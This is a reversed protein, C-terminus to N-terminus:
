CPVDAVFLLSVDREENSHWVFNEMRPIPVMWGEKVQAFVGDQGKYYTRGTESQVTVVDQVSIQVRVLAERTVREMDTALIPLPDREFIRRSAVGWVIDGENSTWALAYDHDEAFGHARIMHIALPAFLGDELSAAVEAAEVDVVLVQGEHTGVAVMGDGAVSVCTPTGVGPVIDRLNGETVAIGRRVSWAVYRGDIGLSFYCMDLNIRMFGAGVIHTPHVTQSPKYAGSADATRAVYEGLREDYFCGGVLLGKAHVHLLPQGDSLLTLEAPAQHQHEGRELPFKAVYGRSTGGVLGFNTCDLCSMRGVAPPLVWERLPRGVPKLAAASRFVALLLSLIHWPMPPM